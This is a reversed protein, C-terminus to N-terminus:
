GGSPDEGRVLSFRGDPQREVRGGIELELLVRLVEHVPIRCRAALEDASVAEGPDLAGLVPGGGPEVPPPRAGAEEVGLARLLEGPGLLPRAGLRLLANPGVSQDSLISGPVAFVERGEDVALRATVLAGSRAGAEVVVVAHAVGALLRNREPFHHRRPPTGPPYETLLAGRDAISEALRGHEPPYIRDPGTGWVAWTAGGGELAGEHAAADVGRAMGSVVVVGSRALESGLLRAVQRGYATARRSGVVAVRPGPGLRGRAFLGLPPDATELLLSPFEPSDPTIWRWGGRSVRELLSPVHREVLDRATSLLAAPAGAARLEVLLRGEARAAAVLRRCRVGGGALLLALRERANHEPTTVGDM